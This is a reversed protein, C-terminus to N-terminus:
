VNYNGVYLLELEQHCGIIPENTNIHLLKGDEYAKRLEEIDYYRIKGYQTLGSLNNCPINVCCSHVFSYIKQICHRNNHLIGEMDNTSKYKKDYLIDKLLKSQYIHGDFSFPYGFNFCPGYKNPNWSLIHNEMEDPFLPPQLQSTIHNQVVTNYGLRLSICENYEIDFTCPIYNFFVTDDTLLCVNQELDLLYEVDEQFNKEKHFIVQPYLDKCIQYSKKHLETEKYLVSIYYTGRWFYQNISRLLLDLQAARNKSFILLNLM